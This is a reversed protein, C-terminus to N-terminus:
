SRTRAVRAAGEPPPTHTPTDPKEDNPTDAQPGRRKEACNIMKIIEEPKLTDLSKCLRMLGARLIQSDGLQTLPGDESPDVAMEANTYKRRIRNILSVVDDTAPLSFPKRKEDSDKPEIGM